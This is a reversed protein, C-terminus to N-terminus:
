EASRAVAAMVGRLEALGRLRGILPYGPTSHGGLDSLLEQGHDPRMPIEWDARGAAKRRQEEAHLAAIIGVMDTDGELHAAEFFDPRAPDLSDRRTTNRLHAFHIRPGLRKVFDPGDFDGAVGTDEVVISLGYRFVEPKDGTNTLELNKVHWASPM